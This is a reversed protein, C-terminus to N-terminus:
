FSQGRARQNQAVTEELRLREAEATMRLNHEGAAEARMMRLVAITMEAEGILSFRRDVKCTEIQSGQKWGYFLCGGIVALAVLFLLWFQKGTVINPLFACPLLKRM